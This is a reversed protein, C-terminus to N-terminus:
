ILIIQYQKTESRYETGKWNYIDEGTFPMKKHFLNIAFSQKTYRKKINQLYKPFINIQSEKHFKHKNVYDHVSGCFCVCYFIYCFLCQLLPPINIQIRGTNRAHAKLRPGRLGARHKIEIPNDTWRFCTVCKTVKFSSSNTIRFPYFTSVLVVLKLVKM